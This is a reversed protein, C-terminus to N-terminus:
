NLTESQGWKDSPRFIGIENSLGVYPRISLPLPFGNNVYSTVNQLFSEGGRRSLRQARVDIFRQCQMNRDKINYM